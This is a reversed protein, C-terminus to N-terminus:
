VDENLDRWIMNFYYSFKSDSRNKIPTSKENLEIEYIKKISSPRKSLVIIRDSMSIAEGIDHTVM